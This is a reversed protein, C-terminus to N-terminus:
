ASRREPAFVERLADLKELVQREHEEQRQQRTPRSPTPPAAPFPEKECTEAVSLRRLGRNSRRDECVAQDHAHFHAIVWRDPWGEGVRQEKQGRERVYLVLEARRRVEDRTAGGAVWEAIRKPAEAAELMSRVDYDCKALMRVKRAQTTPSPEFPSVYAARQVM